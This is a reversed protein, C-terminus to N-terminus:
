EFLRSKNKTSHCSFCVWCRDTQTGGKERKREREWVCEWRREWKSPCKLESQPCSLWVFRADFPLHKALGFLFWWFWSGLLGSGNQANRTLTARVFIKPCHHHRLYYFSPMRNSRAPNSDWSPFGKLRNNSPLRGDRLSHTKFPHM